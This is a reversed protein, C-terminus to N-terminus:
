DQGILRAFYTEQEILGCFRFEITVTESLQDVFLAKSEIPTLDYISGDSSTVLCAQESCTELDLELGDVM